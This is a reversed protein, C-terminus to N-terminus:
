VQQLCGRFSNTPHLPLRSAPAHTTSANDSPLAGVYLRTVSIMTFDGVVTGSQSVTSDVQVTVKLVLGVFKRCRMSSQSGGAAIAM